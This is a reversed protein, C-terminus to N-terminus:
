APQFYGLIDVTVYAAPPTKATFKLQSSIEWPTQSFVQQYQYEVGDWAKVDGIPWTYTKATHGFALPKTAWPYIQVSDMYISNMAIEWQGQVDGTDTHFGHFLFKSGAPVNLTMVTSAGAPFNNSGSGTGTIGSWANVRTSDMGIGASGGSTKSKHRFTYGGTTAWEYPQAHPKMVAGGGGGSGGVEVVDGGTTKTYVKGTSTDVALEGSTLKDAQPEGSGRKLLVTTVM